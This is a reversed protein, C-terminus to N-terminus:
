ICKQENANLELYMSIKLFVYPKNSYTPNPTFNILWRVSFKHSTQNQFLFISASNVAFFIM